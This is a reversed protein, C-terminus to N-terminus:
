DTVAVKVPAFVRVVVTAPLPDIELEGAPIVHGDVQKAENVAPLLTVSVSVGLAPYVKVEQLPPPQEPDAVVQTTVMDAASLTVAVKLAPECVRVTVTVPPAPLLIELLGVPMLAHVGLPPVQEAENGEPVTMVSKSVSTKPQYREASVPVLQAPPAQVSVIEPLVVTFAVKRCLEPM